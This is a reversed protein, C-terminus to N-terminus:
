SLILIIVLSLVKEGGKIIHDEIEALSIKQFIFYIAIIRGILGKSILTGALVGVFLSVILKKTKFTFFITIIEPILSLWIM